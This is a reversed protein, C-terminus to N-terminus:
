RHTHCTHRAYPQLHGHVDNTHLITVTVKECDCLLVICLLVLTSLAARLRTRM